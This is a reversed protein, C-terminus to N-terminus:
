RSATEDTPKPAQEADTARREVRSHSVVTTRPETSTPVEEGCDPCTFASGYRHDIGLGIRRKSQFCYIIGGIFRLHAQKPNQHRGLREHLRASLMDTDVGEAELEAEVEEPTMTAVEEPDGEAFNGLHRMVESPRM